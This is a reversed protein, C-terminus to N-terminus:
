IGARTFAQDLDDILDQPDQFYVTARRGPDDPFLVVGRLSEGEAGPIERVEVNDAGFRNQLDALTTDASFDGPLLWTVPAATPAQPPTTSAPTGTAITAPSEATTAIDPPSAPDCSCLLVLSLCLVTRTALPNRYM